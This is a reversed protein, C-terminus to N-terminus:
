AGQSGVTHCKMEKQSFLLKVSEMWALVTGQPQAGAKGLSLEHSNCCLPLSSLCSGKLTEIESYIM